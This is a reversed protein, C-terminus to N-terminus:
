QVKVLETIGQEWFQGFEIEAIKKGTEDKKGTIPIDRQKAISKELDSFSIKVLEAIEDEAFEMERLKRFASVPDTWQRQGNQVKLFVTRGDALTASLGASKKLQTKLASQAKRLPGDFKKRADEFYMLDDIDMEPSIEKVQEDTLTTKMTTIDKKIAPCGLQAPCYKCHGGQNTDSDIFNPNAVARRICSALYDVLKQLEDGEVTVESVRDNGDDPNNKPQCIKWTIKELTPYSLYVCVIYGLMQWNAEAPDVPIVGAKLDYGVCETGEANFATVDAHGTLTFDGFDIFFDDEVIIGMGSTSGRVESLFFDVVFESFPNPKFLGCDPSDGIGGEGETASEENILTKAATWHCWNGEHAAPGSEENPFRAALVRSVHCTLVRDLESCRFSPKM